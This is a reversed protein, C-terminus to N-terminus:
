ICLGQLTDFAQYCEGTSVAQRARRWQELSAVIGRGIEQPKHGKAPKTCARAAKCARRQLDKVRIERRAQKATSNWEFGLESLDIESDQAVM